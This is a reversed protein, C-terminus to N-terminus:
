TWSSPLKWGHKEAIRKLRAKIAPREAAPIRGLLKVAARFHKEDKVPFRRNKPDGFESAPMKDREKQSVYAETYYDYRDIEGATIMEEVVENFEDKNVIEGKSMEEKFKSPGDIAVGQRIAQKKGQPGTFCSKNNEGYKWGSKGDKTCRVLPM